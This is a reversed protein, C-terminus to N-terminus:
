KEVHVSNVTYSKSILKMVTEAAALQLVKVSIKDLM